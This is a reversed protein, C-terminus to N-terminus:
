EVYSKTDIKKKLKLKNDDSDVGKELALTWQKVADNTKGLKFLIDGYHELLVSTQPNTNKLAKQIWVLAEDYKGDAFLVWAYTDEFTGNNPQLDTAKAAYKTAEDLREKRLSLYYALNNMATVNTSDLRIAEMYAADSAKYMKLSNYIDGLGGYINAQLFPSEEQANNLAAEM